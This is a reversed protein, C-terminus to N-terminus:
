IHQTHRVQGPTVSRVFGQTTGPTARTLHLDRFTVKSINQGNIMDGRWDGFELTTESMGACNMATCGLGAQAPLVRLGM